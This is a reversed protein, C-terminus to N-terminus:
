EAVESPTRPMRVRSTPGSGYYKKGVWFAPDPQKHAFEWVAGDKNATFIKRASDDSVKIVEKSGPPRLDRSLAATLHKITPNSM